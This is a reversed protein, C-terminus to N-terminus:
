SRDIGITMTGRLGRSVSRGRRRLAMVAREGADGFIGDTANTTDAGGRAAYAGQRYVSRATTTRFFVQGTHVADGGVSVKMHIHPTRGRYWGPFITDFRANGNVNTRQVGRLFTEGRTGESAFGSYRGAADCHWIEVAAGPIVRCTAADVVNFTLALPTGPRGGRIDRRMLDVDLEYPGATTEPQLVCASRGAAVSPIVLDRVGYAAGFGVAGFAVLAERRSLNQPDMTM